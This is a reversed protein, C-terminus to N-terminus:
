DHGDIIEKAQGKWEELAEEIKALTHAGNQSYVGVYDRLVSASEELLCSFRDCWPWYHDVSEQAESLRAEAEDLRRKFVMEESSM